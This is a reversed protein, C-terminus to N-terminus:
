YRGVFCCTIAKLEVATKETEFHLNISYKIRFKNPHQSDFKQMTRIITTTKIQVRKQAFEM